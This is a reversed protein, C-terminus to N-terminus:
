PVAEAVQLFAFPPFRELKRAIEMNVVYAFETARVIPLEGPIAGDRLIRLAQDAALRGVDELRAAISLLAQNERVLSEYPSVVAIGNDVAASTFLEGNAYLFASSGLYVWSVGAKRLEALRLPILAPDPAGPNGPDIEIAVLKVGLQPALAALEDRKIVSNKENSNYLLGLTSFTPDYQRIVEVNVAEPARNFTGTVNARGSREFSEAIRTTFPDAVLTFVVPIDDLFRPDGLDDLTGIVGLTASTGHTVVLDAPIARAEAVVGPLRSKDQGLDHVILEVDFGSEALGAKFGECTNECGQYFAGIIVKKKEGAEATPMVAALLAALVLAKLHYKMQSERQAAAARETM